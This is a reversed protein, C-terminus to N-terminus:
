RFSWGNVRVSGLSGTLPAQVDQPSRLLFYGGVAAGALAVGGTVLWPWIPSGHSDNVLTVDVTRTEGDHLEVQATYAVKGAETVHVEHLGPPLQGEFHGKAIATGDVVITAAENSSVVLQAVHREAVLTAAIAIENGGQVAVTQEFPVFGSKSVTVKHDGLDLVLPEPLPTLGAEHGDIAVSAGDEKTAVRVTGVLGRIAAVAADVNAREDAPMMVGADREYRVLLTQMRAYQKLSRACIAMDFLLRPDKALNYAQEFKTMAGVFDNNNLLIHASTFADKAPGTLSESLSASQAVAIHSALLVGV